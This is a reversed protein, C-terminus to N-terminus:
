CFVQLGAFIPKSKGIILPLSNTAKLTVAKTLIFYQEPKGIELFPSFCRTGFYNGNKVV